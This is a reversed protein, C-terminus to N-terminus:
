RHLSWHLKWFLEIKMFNGDSLVINPGKFQAPKGEACELVHIVGHPLLCKPDRGSALM